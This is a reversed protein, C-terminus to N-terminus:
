CNSGLPVKKKHSGPSFHVWTHYRIITKWLLRSFFRDSSTGYNSEWRRTVNWWLLIRSDPGPMTLPWYYSCIFLWNYLRSSEFPKEGPPIFKSILFSCHRSIRQTLFQSTVWLTIDLQGGSLKSSAIFQRFNLINIDINSKPNGGEQLSYSITANIFFSLINYMTPLITSTKGRIGPKYKSIWKYTCVRNLHFKHPTANKKKSTRHM